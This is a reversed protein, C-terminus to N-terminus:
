LSDSPALIRAMRKMIDDIDKERNYRRHEREKEEVSEHPDSFSYSFGHYHAPRERIKDAIKSRITDNQEMLQLESHIKLQHLAVHARYANMIPRLFSPQACGLLVGTIIGGLIAISVITAIM